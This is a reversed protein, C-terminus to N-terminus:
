FVWFSWKGATKTFIKCLNRFFVKGSSDPWVLFQFLPKQIGAHPSCNDSEWSDHWVAGPPKDALQWQGCVLFSSANLPSIILEKQAKHDKLTEGIHLRDLTTQCSQTSGAKVEDCTHVQLWALTQSGAWRRLLQFFSPSVPYKLMM